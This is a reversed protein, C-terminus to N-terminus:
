SAPPTSAPPAAPPVPAAPIAPPPGASPRMPISGPANMAGPAPQIGAREQLQRLQQELQQNRYQLQEIHGTLQRLMNEIRDLRMAMESSAGGPVPRAPANEEGRNFLNDLFGPGRDQATAVGATFPLALAILAAFRLHYISRTM